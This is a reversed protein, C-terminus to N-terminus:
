LDAAGDVLDSITSRIADVGHVPNQCAGRRCLYLTPEQDIAPRDAILASVPSGTGAKLSPIILRGPIFSENIVQRAEVNAAASSGDVLVLEWGPGALFEVALLSQSSALAHKAMLGSLVDLTGVAKEEFEPRACLRALRLLSYAAMANGSPTANDQSDKARTILNEHDSSTYYFGGASVDEFQSIMREALELASTLRGGDGSAEFLDILGDILCAYDDLYGNFRARGDKFSHLLRGDAERMEGLIFDAARSAAEAYKPEGLVMAGLAMASIMMGNWSALVKDDRGPWVRTSRVEFLKARCRALVDALEESDLGLVKAADEHRKPRNLINKGEWNGRTSVDYCYCFIRGEESGLIELIEEESWVFFRGEEGESDADQTAYFGGEPQTMERLVYDLTERAIRSYDANKTVQFAELYAPVLLANDYLMKEFHPALWRADTSYRAFGGGLHDYIGGAGMRDLTLKVTALADPNGTRKWCRLLLRISMPHPFKPADGFGGNSPDAAQLLQTEANAILQDYGVGAPEGDIGSYQAVANTLQEAQEDLEKRKDVWANHVGELIQAFGPMGMRAHPPWYTGGYFPKLEPTMFVSMPWGGRGTLLTVSNMYIQDLDPREERDVKICVFHENMFDAIADSEFSEHEMVHCWHCASYGISLFIPRDLQKARAIAEDGWPYWDVPNCAHQLLYPSTENGLRNPPRDTSSM